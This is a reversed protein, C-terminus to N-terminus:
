KVVDVQLNSKQIVARWKEVESDFTQRVMDSSMPQYLDIQSGAAQKQFEPNKVMQNVNDRLINAVSDPVKAQSMLYFNMVASVGPIGAEEATPIGPAIPSRQPALVALIRLKGARHLEIVSGITLFGIQTEGSLVSQILAGGGKYPVHLIDVGSKQKFLEGAVNTISGVGASAYSFKKDGQKLLKLLDAITRAPVDNNVFIVNPTAGLLAIPRLDAQRFNANGPNVLPALVSSSTSGALLSYGDPTSHAIFAGAILGGAGDKNVVVVPQALQKGLQQAVTRAFADTPGGASTGVFLQLPRSPFKTEGRAVMSQLIFTAIAACLLTSFFQRM